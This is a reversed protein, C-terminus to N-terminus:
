TPKLQIGPEPMRMVLDAVRDAEQEFRDGPQNITLKPQIMRLQSMMPMRRFKNTAGTLGLRSGFTPNCVLHGAQLPTLSAEPGPAGRAKTQIQIRVPEIRELFM